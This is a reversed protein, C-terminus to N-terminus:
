SVGWKSKLYSKILNEEDTSLQRTFAIVEAEAGALYGDSGNTNKGLTYKTFVRTPSGIAATATTAGVAISGSTGTKKHVFMTYTNASFSANLIAANSTNTSQTQPGNVFAIPIYTTTPSQVNDAYTGDSQTFVRGGSSFTTNNKAVVFLTLDTYTTWAGEIWQSGSFSIAGLGNQGSAPPLWTPRNGSTAQIAHRNNGSLDNWQYVSQGSTTVPTTGADTFLTNQQSADLWLAAGSVPLTTNPNYLNPYAKTPPTFNATYRALGKTVRFDDIYGNISRSTGGQGGIVVTDSSSYYLSGTFSSFVTNQVGNIYCYLVTGSRVVAVHTWAGSTVSITSTEGSNYAWSSGNMSAGFALSTDRNTFKHTISLGAYVDGSRTQFLRAAAQPTGAYYYWFEVTFDSSGFNFASVSPTALYDGSGDFYGSAGGFKSQTTSVAASGTATVALANPGSDVFSTSANSGDMHLLLSVSSFNPDSTVIVPKKATRIINSLM